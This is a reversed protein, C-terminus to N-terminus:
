KGGYKGRISIFYQNDISTINGGVGSFGRKPTKKIKSSKAEFWQLYYM